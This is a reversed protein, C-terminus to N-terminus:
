WYPTEMDATVKLTYYIDMLKKFRESAEPIDAETTDDTHITSIGRKKLIEELKKKNSDM